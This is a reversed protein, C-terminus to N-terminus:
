SKAARRGSRRAFNFRNLVAPRIGRFLALNGAGAPIAGRTVPVDEQRRSNRRSGQLSRSLFANLSFAAAALLGGAIADLIFHNGTLVITFFTLAPYAPALAKLRGNLRQAFSVGLVVTWCFHLSPMAANTNYFVAMAPSGYISPGYEQITNVLGGAANGGALNFPSAVPFLAFAALAAALTILIISRYHYYSRRDVLFLWTGFALIVPWYTIIYVWNLVVALWEAQQLMWAQWAPEWFFGLRQELAAIRGANAIGVATTDAYVLGRTFLYVFYAGLILALELIHPKYKRFAEM